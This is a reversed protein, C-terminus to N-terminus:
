YCYVSGITNRLAGGINKKNATQMNKVDQLTIIPLTEYPRGSPTFSMYSEMRREFALRRARAGQRREHEAEARERVSNAAQDASTSTSANRIAQRHQQEEELRARNALELLHAPTQPREIQVRCVPCSPQKATWNHICESCQPSSLHVCPGPTLKGPFASSRHM